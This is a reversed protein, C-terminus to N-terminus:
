KKKTEQFEKINHNLNEVKVRHSENINNVISDDNQILGFISNYEHDTYTEDKKEEKLRKINNKKIKVKNNGDEDHINKESKEKINKNEERSNGDIRETENKSLFRGGKNRMRNM